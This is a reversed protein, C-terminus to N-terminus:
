FSDRFLNIGFYKEDITIHYDDFKSDLWKWAGEADDYQKLFRVIGMLYSKATRVTGIEYVYFDCMCPDRAIDLLAEIKYFTEVNGCDMIDHLKEAQAPSGLIEVRMNYSDGLDTCPQFGYSTKLESIAMSIEIKLDLDQM